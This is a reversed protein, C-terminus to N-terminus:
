APSSLWSLYYLPNKFSRWFSKTFCWNLGYQSSIYVSKLKWPKKQRKENLRFSLIWDGHFGAFLNFVASRGQLGFLAREDQPLKAGPSCLVELGGVFNSHGSSFPTPEAKLKGAKGWSLRPAFVDYDTLECPKCKVTTEEPFNLTFIIEALRKRRLWLSIKNQSPKIEYWEM